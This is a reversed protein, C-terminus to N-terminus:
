LRIDFKVNYPRLSVAFTIRKKKKRNAAYKLTGIVAAVVIARAFALAARADSNYQKSKPDVNGLDGVYRNVNAM